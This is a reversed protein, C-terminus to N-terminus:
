ARSLEVITNNAPMDLVRKLSLGNKGAEPILDLELDRVGWSPDRQKLSVDFSANGEAHFVGNRRFPGYFVVHGAPTLIDPAHSLIGKMVEVPSIHIVNACYILDFGSLPEAWDPKLINIERVDMRDQLNEHVAWARCSQRSATDPDSATWSLGPYAKLLAVAHEGTGSGIELVRGETLGLTEFADVIPQRNRASSPSFLRGAEAERKELAIEKKEAM